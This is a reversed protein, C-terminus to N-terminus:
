GRSTPCVGPSPGQRSSAGSTERHSSPRGTPVCPSHPMTATASTTSHVGSTPPLVPRPKRPVPARTPHVWPSTELAAEATITAPFYRASMFTQESQSHNIEQGVMLNVNHRRNFSNRYTLTNALRYTEKYGKTREASPLNNMGSGSAKSSLAGYFKNDNSYKTSIGYESRFQLGKVIDWVLAAKLDVLQETRKRYNQENEELPTYRKNLTNGEEDLNEEDSEADEIVGSSLGNTPRYRLATLVSTGATGAGDITRTRYTANTELRLNKVLEQNLKLNFRTSM